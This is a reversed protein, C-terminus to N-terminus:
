YASDLVERVKRTLQLPTFPKALFASGEHPEGGEAIARQPYGSMFITRFETRAAALRRALAQGSTRPMVSDTLLLDITGPHSEGIRLAEDGDAATLVSYGQAELTQRVLHRVIEEDEAVLVTEGDRARPAQEEATTVATARGM